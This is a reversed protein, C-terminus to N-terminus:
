KSDLKAMKKLKVRDLKNSTNKPLIKLFEIEKPVKFAPFHSRCYNLIYDSSLDSSEKLSIYCKMAEGLIEDEIGVIAVEVVDELKIIYDEIEKPSVRYGAVKIFNKERDTLYIFGDEDIKGLDGTFLKGQRFSKATEVPDKWYGLTINDGSAVIEGIEGPKVWNGHHDLVELKVGPIGKGISGLKTILLEPPLYSLRATAETQGYMIFIKTTPLTAHLEQISSIALKGGAQQIYRLTPFTMKKLPSRRLLIQYTSPVGAFGTCEKENIEKLVKGPFMFQNNLVLSAGVRFHTHLLSTGFCYSFPLVVMMRDHNTLNLYEIISTTNTILNKHTQMVGKPIGTSGSTFIIVAIDTEENVSSINGTKLGETFIGISDTIKEDSYVHNLPIEYKKMKEIYKRQIFFTSVDCTEVVFKFNDKGFKPHLPIVIKGAAIIGFYSIIFFPSNDAILIIKEDKKVSLESIIKSVQLVSNYVHFYSFTNKKQYIAIKENLEKSNEFIFNAFNM